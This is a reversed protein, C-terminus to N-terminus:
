WVRVHYCSIHVTSSRGDDIFLYQETNNFICNIFFLHYVLWAENFVQAINKIYRMLAWPSERESPSDQCENSTIHLNQTQSM